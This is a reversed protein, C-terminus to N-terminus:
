ALAKWEWFALLDPDMNKTNDVDRLRNIGSLLDTRLHVKGYKLGDKVLLNFCGITAQADHQAALGRDSGGDKEPLGNQILLNSLSERVYVHNDYIAAMLDYIKLNPFEKEVDLGKDKLVLLDFDFLNYGVLIEANQLQQRLADLKEAYPKKSDVYSGQGGNWHWGINALHAQKIRKRREEESCGRLNKGETGIDLGLIRTYPKKDAIWGMSAAFEQSNKLRLDNMKQSDMEINGFRHKVYSQYFDNKQWPDQARYLEILEMIDLNNIEMTIQQYVDIDFQTRYGIHTCERINIEFLDKKGLLFSVAEQYFQSIFGAERELKEWLSKNPSEEWYDLNELRSYTYHFLIESKKYSMKNLTVKNQEWLQYFAKKAAESLVETFDNMYRVLSDKNEQNIAEDLLTQKECDICKQDALLVLEPKGNHFQSECFKYGHRWIWGDFSRHQKQPLYKPLWKFYNILKNFTSQSLTETNNNSWFDALYKMKDKFEGEFDAMVIDIVQWTVNKMHANFEAQMKEYDFTTTPQSLSDLFDQLEQSTM